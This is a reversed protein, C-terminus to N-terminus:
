GECIWPAQAAARRGASASPFPLVWVVQHALTILTLKLKIFYERVPELLGEGIYM